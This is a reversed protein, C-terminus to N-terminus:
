LLHGIISIESKEIICKDNCTCDIDNKRKERGTIQCVFNLQQKRKIFNICYECDDNVNKNENQNQNQNQNQNENENKNENENENENENKTDNKNEPQSCEVLEKSDNTDKISEKVFASLMFINLADNYLKPKEIKRFAPSSHVYSYNSVKRFLSLTKIANRFM